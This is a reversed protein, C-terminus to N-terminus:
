NYWRGRQDAFNLKKTYFGVALSDISPGTIEKDIVSFTYRADFLGIANIVNSYDAQQGFGSVSESMNLYTNLNQGAALYIFDITKAVRKVGQKEPIKNGIRQYFISGGVTQSMKSGQYENPMRVASAVRRPYELDVYHSTTDTGLIESYHFRLVVQYSKGYYATRWETSAPIRYESMNIKSKIVDNPFPSEVKLDYITIAESTITDYPKTPIIIQLKYKCGNKLPQKTKYLYNSQTGFTGTDGKYNFKSKEIESVRELLINYNTEEWNTEIYPSVSNDIIKYETLSVNLVANYQTSDGQKAMEYADTDGLFAKNIRFYQATDSQNILAYVITQDSWQGNIKFDDDNCAYFIVSLIIAIFPLAKNTM